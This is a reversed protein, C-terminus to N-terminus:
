QRISDSSVSMGVFDAPITLGPSGTDIALAVDVPAGLAARALLLVALVSSSIRPGLVFSTAVSM